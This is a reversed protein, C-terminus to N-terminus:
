GRPTQARRSKKKEVLSVKHTSGLLVGDDDDASGTGGHATKLAIERAQRGVIQTTCGNLRHDLASANSGIQHGFHQKAVAQHRTLALCRCSLGTEFTAQWLAPATVKDLIHPEPM